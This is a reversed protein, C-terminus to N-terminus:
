VLQCRADWVSPQLVATSTVVYYRAPMGSLVSYGFQVLMGDSLFARGGPTGLRAVYLVSLM